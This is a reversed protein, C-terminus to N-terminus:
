GEKEKQLTTMPDYKEKSTRSLLHRFFCVQEYDRSPQAGSSYLSYRIFVIFDFSFLEFYIRCFIIGSWILTSHNKNRLISKTKGEAAQQQQEAAVFEHYTM